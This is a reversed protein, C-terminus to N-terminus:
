RSDFGTSTELAPRQSDSSALGAAPECCTAPWFDLGPDDLRKITLAPVPLSGGHGAARHLPLGVRRGAGARDALGAVRAGALPDPAPADRDVAAAVVAARDDLLGPRRVRRAEPQGADGQVGRDRRDLAVLDDRGGLLADPDLRDEVGPERRLLGREGGLRRGEGVVLPREAQVDGRGETPQAQGGDRRRDEEVPPALEDAASAGADDDLLGVGQEPPDEDPGPRVAVGDGLLDQRQLARALRIMLLAIEERLSLREEEALLRRLWAVDEPPDPVVAPEAGGLDAPQLPPVHQEGGARDVHAGLAVALAAVARGLAPAGALGATDEGVTGKSTSVLVIRADRLWGAPDITSVPQGVLARAAQSAAFRFVKSLVPNATDIQLQRTLQDYEGWWYPVFPDPSAAALLRRYPVENLLAVVDLVTRQRARKGLARLGVNVDVLTALSWRFANAMRPGWFTDFQRQFVTLTSEVAQDREWGLGADILNLGFARQRDGADLYVVDDRRDPPVLGLAARALDRHPDVLVLTRGRDAMLHQAIRLLLSSKGRGTKALLLLHRRLLEDPLHVPVARGQHAAVGIRCGAAVADALPLLARAATREVLPADDAARPPHWLGALERATLVLGARRRPLPALVRLDRGRPDLGRAELGNGAARDFQRYAGAVRELRAAVLRPDAEAPAFLALRPQALFAVGDLKERVLRPDHVEQRNLRRLLLVLGALGAVAGVGLLGLSLWEEDLYWRYAQLATAGAVLLGGMLWVQALSTDHQAQVRERALPPEVALRPYGRCWDAPAPCLVLQSVVRWGDPLGGLAGLVGLVPDAQAARPDDLDRDAFTRLPLYPAARLRLACAAAVERGRRLPDEDTPVPRLDAQPYAVGLQDALHDRMAPSGARALFRRWRGTAAIELAFPEALSIAALLNEAAGIAALNTRPTVLEVLETAPPPPRREALRM